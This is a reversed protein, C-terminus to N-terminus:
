YERSTLMVEDFRSAFATDYETLYHDSDLADLAESKSASNPIPNTAKNHPSSTQM